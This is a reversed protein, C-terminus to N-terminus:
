RFQQCWYVTGDAARAMAVGYRLPAEAAHLAPFALSMWALAAVLFSLRMGRMGGVNECRCPM